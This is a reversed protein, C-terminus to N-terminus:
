CNGLVKKTEFSSSVTKINNYNTIVSPRMKPGGSGEDLELNLKKLSSVNEAKKTCKNGQHHGENRCLGNKTDGNSSSTNKCPTMKMEKHNDGLDEKSTECSVNAKQHGKM